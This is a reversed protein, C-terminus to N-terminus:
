KPTRAKILERAEESLAEYLGDPVDFLVEWPIGTEKCIIGADVM